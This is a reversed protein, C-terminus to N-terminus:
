DAIRSYTTVMDPLGRMPLTTTLTAGACSYAMAMSGGGPAGTAFSGSTEPTTVTVEGNMGGGAETCINLRGDEASWAGAAAAVTGEGEILVDGNGDSATVGFSGTAFVGDARLRIQRDGQDNFTATIGQARMWEAPGGGSMAWAGVLCADIRDSGLCPTCSHRREVRLEGEALSDDTPLSVLRWAADAGDRTDIEDPLAVWDGSAIASWTMHPAPPRPTTGWVGCAFEARGLTLTFSALPLAHRGSEEVTIVTGEPAVSGLQGGQPHFIGGDAYAEAFAQWAEAPLAARMAAQQAEAGGTDAMADQFPMLAALGGRTQMLWYFFHAAEHTMDNLAVRGEVAADFDGSRDTFATSDPVAAAAFAEATGEIWWAGGAGYTQYRAGAYSAGQVCHFIEHAVTTAMSGDTAGAALAYITILCERELGPTSTDASLAVGLVESGTGHNTLEESSHVDDLVLLTVHDVAYRGLGEFAAGALRAGREIEAILAPPAAWGAGADAIGRIIRPGGPTSIDLRFLEICTLDSASPADPFGSLYGEAM